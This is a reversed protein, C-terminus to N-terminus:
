RHRNKNHRGVTPDGPVERWSSLLFLNIHRSSEVLAHSGTRAGEM